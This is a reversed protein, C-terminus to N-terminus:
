LWAYIEVGRHDQEIMNNMYKIQRVEILLHWLGHIFLSPNEPHLEERNLMM